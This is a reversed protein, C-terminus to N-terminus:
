IERLQKVHLRLNFVISQLSRKVHLTEHLDGIHVQKKKKKRYQRV